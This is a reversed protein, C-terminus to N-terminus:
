IIKEKKRDFDEMMKVHLLMHHLKKKLYKNLYIYFSSLSKKKYIIPFYFVKQTTKQNIGFIAWVVMDFMVKQRYAMNSM